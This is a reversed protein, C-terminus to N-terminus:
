TTGKPLIELFFTEAGEVESEYPHRKKLELLNIYASYNWSRNEKKYLKYRIGDSVILKNCTPYEKAYNSAQEYAFGLGDGLRKSEIIIIPKSQKSYPKDFLVVDAYKLEIKIKQEAWGLSMLLPVILFTRIEQEGVVHEERYHDYWKAIRRLRWITHTILEANQSPLGAGILKDILQDDSIKEQVSPIPIAPVKEGRSWVNTAVNIAQQYNVRSLTGRRLGSVIIKEVPKKWSIERCHQLDWGDVDGFVDKYLYDSVIEGVAVIEWKQGNPRKLIVLDGKSLEEALTKIFTKRKGFKKYYEKHDSYPGECGPGVLIVGFKLFVDTYDRSSDGAAVQWINKM